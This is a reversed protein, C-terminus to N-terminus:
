CQCGGQRSTVAIARQKPITPPNSICLANRQQEFRQRDLPKSFIDVLMDQTPIHTIQISRNRHHSRLYHHRLHIFKRRRTPATNTAITCPPAGTNSHQTSAPAGANNETAM